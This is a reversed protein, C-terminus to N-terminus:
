PSIKTNNTTNESHKVSRAMGQPFCIGTYYPTEKSRVVKAPIGTARGLSWSRRPPSASAPRSSEGPAAASSSSSCSPRRRRRRRRRHCRRRRSFPLSDDALGGGRRGEQNTSNLQKGYDSTGEVEYCQIRDKARAGTGAGTGTWRINILM